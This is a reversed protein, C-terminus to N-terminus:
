SLNIYCMHSLLKMSKRFVIVFQWKLKNKNKKKKQGLCDIVISIFVVYMGTSVTETDICAWILCPDWKKVM